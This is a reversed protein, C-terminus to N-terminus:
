PLELEKQLRELARQWLKRVAPLSRQMREAIEEFSRQEQHHLTIIM